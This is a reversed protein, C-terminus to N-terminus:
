ASAVLGKDRLETVLVMVDRLAQERDVEYQRVVHDAVMGLDDGAELRRWVEAGIADLGFYEGLGFELLVLEEGFARAYVSGSVTVRSREDLPPTM